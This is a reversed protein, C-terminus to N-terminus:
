TSPRPVSPRRPALRGVFEWPGPSRLGELDTAVPSEVAARVKWRGWSRFTTVVAQEELLHRRSELRAAPSLWYRREMRRGEEDYAFWLAGNEGVVADVPWMRAIHDCWGAPRGTVPVVRIGAQRLEELALFASGVLRGEWTLTDDIDALVYRVARRASPPFEALPRM